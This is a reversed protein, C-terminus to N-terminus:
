IAVTWEIFALVYKYQYWFVNHVLNYFVSFTLKGYLGFNHNAWLEQSHRGLAEQYLSLGVKYKFGRDMPAYQRPCPLSMNARPFVQFLSNSYTIDVYITSQIYCMSMFGLIIHSNNFKCYHYLFTGEGKAARVNDYLIGRANMYLRLEVFSEHVNLFVDSKLIPFNFMKLNNLFRKSRWVETATNLFSFQESSTTRVLPIWNIKVMYPASLSSVEM